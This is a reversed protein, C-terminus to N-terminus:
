NINPDRKRVEEMATSLTERFKYEDLVNKFLGLLANSRAVCDPARRVGVGDPVPDDDCIMCHWEEPAESGRMPKIHILRPCQWGNVVCHDGDGDADIEVLLRIKV